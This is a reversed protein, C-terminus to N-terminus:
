SHPFAPLAPSAPLSPPLRPLSLSPLRTSGWRKADARGEEEGERPARKRLWAKAKGHLVHAIQAWPMTLHHHITTYPVYIASLLLSLDCYCYALVRLTRTRTRLLSHPRQATRTCRAHLLAYLPSSLRHLCYASIFTINEARAPTRARHTATNLFHYFTQCRDTSGTFHEKVQCSWLCPAAFTAPVSNLRGVHYAYSRWGEGHPTTCASSLVWPGLHPLTFFLCARCRWAAMNTQRGFWTARPTARRHRRPLCAPTSCAACVASPPLARTARCLCHARCGAPLPQRQLTLARGHAVRCRLGLTLGGHRGGAQWGGWGCFPQCVGPAGCGHCTRLARCASALCFIDGVPVAPHGGNDGLAPLHPPLRTAWAAAARVRRGSSSHGGRAPSPLAPPHTPRARPTGTSTGRWARNHNQVPPTDRM